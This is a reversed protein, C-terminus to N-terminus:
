SATTCAEFCVITICKNQETNGNFENEDIEVRFFRNHKVWLRTSVFSGEQVLVNWSGGHSDAYRGFLYSQLREAFGTWDRSDKYRLFTREGATSILSRQQKKMLELKRGDRYVGHQDILHRKTKAHATALGFAETRNVIVQWFHGYVRDMDDRLCTCINQLRNDSLPAQYLAAVNRWLHYSVGPDQFSQQRTVHSFSKEKIRSEIAPRKQKEKLYDLESPFFGEHKTELGRMSDWSKYMQLVQMAFKKEKTLKRHGLRENAMQEREQRERERQEKQQQTYDIGQLLAETFGPPLDLAGYEVLTAQRRCHAEARILAPLVAELNRKLSIRRYAAEVFEVIPRLSMMKETQMRELARAAEAKLFVMTKGLAWEDEPLGSAQLMQLAVEKRDANSNAAGLELWRFRKVFEAFPRRYSYGIQRLQLAELISLSFLQNLVKPGEWELPRKTENPKLCRIFHPETQRILGIMSNLSRLFQSAILSGRGIKGAEVVIGEFMEAMVRNSSAKLVDVLEKKLIDQNKELFGDCSYEIDAITHRVVFKIRQDRRSPLVVGKGGLKRVIMGCLAEDSARLGLCIDEIIAFVSDRPGCLTDMIEANDTWVLAETPIGESKYLKTETEFIVDIFHKQLHENTINILLQELSNHEFVEFGFIDLMGMYVGFGGPPAITKNLFRVLWAFLQDYVHKAVSKIMMDAERYTRPGELLQNGVKTQKRLINQALKDPDVFLLSASEKLVALSEGTVHAADPMGQKELSAVKTNGILLVGSLISFVTSEDESPLGMSVFSERLEQFDSRDDVGEIDFCGGSRATLFTYQDIPRLHLRQRMEDDAGKLLQYLVHFSREGPEQSVLRVKELLFNTIAGYQIGSESSLSLQMFRGFRSSNNNRITKANGFAELLPNGAMIAEQIRNNGKSAAAFYRMVQKTAETKGAGSEGSVIITQSKNYDELNALAQRAVRFVHPETQATSPANRYYDIWEKTANGLDQFPNIAVLLPDAMTYMKAALYRTKLMSLVCAVNKHSLLGIDSAALEDEESNANLVADPDVEFMEKSPPDLQELVYKESTSGPRIVCLSFLLSPNAAVAPSKSTWCRLAQQRDTGLGVPIVASHYRFYKEHPADAKAVTSQQKTAM